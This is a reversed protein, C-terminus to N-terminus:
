IPMPAKERIRKAKEEDAVFVGPWGKLPVGTGRLWAASTIATAYTREGLVTKPVLARREVEEKGLERIWESTAKTPGITALGVVAGRELSARPPGYAASGSMIALSPSAVERWGELGGKHTPWDNMGCHIAITRGEFRALLPSKRTELTKHGNLLLGLYPQMLSLVEVPPKLQLLRPAPPVNLTPTPSAAAAARAAEAFSGALQRRAFGASSPPPAETPKSEETSPSSHVDETSPTSPTKADQQQVKDEAAPEDIILPEHPPLAGTSIDVTLNNRAAALKKIAVEAAADLAAARVLAATAEVAAASAEAAAAVEDATDDVVPPPPLSLGRGGRGVVRSPSLGRGGRGGRNSPLPMAAVAAAVVAFCAEAEDLLAAALVTPRPTM